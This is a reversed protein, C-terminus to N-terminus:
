RIPPQQSNLNEKGLSSSSPTALHNPRRQPKRLDILAHVTAKGREVAELWPKMQREEVWAAFAEEEQRARYSFYEILPMRAEEATLPPFPRSPNYPNPLWGEPLRGPEQGLYEELLNEPEAQDERKQPPPQEDVREDSEQAKSNVPGASSSAMKAAIPLLSPYLQPAQPNFGPLLSPLLGQPRTPFERVGPSGITPSKVREKPTGQISAQSRVSQSLPQTKKKGPARTKTNNIEADVASNDGSALASLERKETRNNQSRNMQRLPRYDEADSGVASSPQSAKQPKKSSQRQSKKPKVVQEDDETPPQSQDDNTRNNTQRTLNDMTSSANSSARTRPRHTTNSATSRTSTPASAGKSTSRSLRTSKGLAVPPKSTTHEVAPEPSRIVESVQPTKRSPRSPKPQISDESQGILSENSATVTASTSSALARRGTKPASSATSSPKMKSRSSKDMIVSDGNMDAISLDDTPPKISSTSGSDLVKSPKKSPKATAKKSNETPQIATFFICAGKKLHVSVPDDDVEWETVSRHCYCCSTTDDVDFKRGKKFLNPTFHFGARALELRTPIGNKGEHKWPGDPGCFTALRAEILNTGRPFWENATGWSHTPSDSWSPAQTDRQHELLAIRAFPCKSSWTLHLDWPDDDEAWGKMSEGCMWCTTRDPENEAPDHFYGASALAEATLPFSQPHPWRSAKPLTKKSKFSMVRAAHSCFEPRLGAMNVNPEM